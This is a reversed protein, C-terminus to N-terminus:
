KAEIPPTPRAALARRMRALVASRLDLALSFMAPVVFTTFVTSLILGGLVVSGLGRYLESGAGPFLVLPLMGFVSTGVSMAIPRIRTGVSERIAARPEMGDERMHNLAQHVILIANNVVTGVLIIFGLMTIVDLPQAVFLNMLRLGLVGGLGALPVSFMIVFPYLFSEFLAAMLLYTIALALLFNWYLALGAQRLKDASGALEARYLGGLDGRQRMPELIRTDIADMATELAMTDPPTVQITVARQREVRAIRVPGSAPGVDAVAGLTVVGGDPVAIPMQDLLHTRHAFSKESMLRLDIERGEHQYDSAKTGDVLASVAFGLDRNSIGLEAARRRDIAVRVEPNDLDLSPRPFAQAGPIVERVKGFVEGGLAILRDLEPGTIEVDISGGEGLDNSFISAQQTFAIAGPISFNAQMFSPVLERVREPDRAAIGMFAQNNLAVYFFDEVGGGPQALAEQSGPASKWLPSLREEYYTYLSAVEDLSYGAPPLLIGFLFNQNGQPLYARQPLFLLAGVAPLGALILIAAVRRFTTGTMWYVRHRVWLTLREAAGVAGWLNHFGRRGPADEVVHLIRAALSPIVTISVILSLAIAAAIAIAIDGFLQGAEEKIFVVPVFVAITTLSSALVAGWVEVAGDHAADLRSKGMQRHRYINELVVISNDVIMGVAFAMGALSVVNITRGFFGMVLFSGILSIPMSVAVILTSTASRLFLTLVLVTLFGGVFVNDRVLGIASRIYDTQDYVQQLRLGRRRLFDGNLREVTARVGAMTQLTNAGTEKVANMALAVRGFHYVDAVPKQFGTEARAVDRLYIPVGNRVAVVINEIDGPADYEGVTRVVYRRKGETFDGGSYNRNERELADALDTVTVGRAALRAPDFIVHMEREKGGFINSGAVGPVRELEPKVFDEAFDLLESIDGAYGNEPLPKLVFWAMAQANPDVTRIVPKEADAPYSPVQQLRNSVKLLAADLDTGVQFTLVVTGVSDDSTSELKVLGEVSKLQEEQEDVIEREIEHPSAGPWITEVTIEPTEVDPTLQIPLRFLAIGGFLALLLVGVATTVPFRISSRILTM